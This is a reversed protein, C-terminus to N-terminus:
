TPLVTEQITLHTVFKGIVQTQNKILTQENQQTNTKTNLLSHFNSNRDEIAIHTINLMKISLKCDVEM